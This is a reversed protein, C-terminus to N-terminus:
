KERGASLSMGLLIFCGILSSGGYSVFPMTLGTTPLLCLNVSVHVMSQFLLLLAAGTIFVRETVGSVGSALRLLAAALGAILAGTLVGGALGLTELLTAFASDNYSFPLYNNSWVAGGLKAGFYHGRAIALEFQRAHWGSGMPDGDPDLFGRLRQLAYPHRWVFLAAAALGGGVPLLLYTKKGSAAFYLLMFVGFYIAATGFDPQLAVPILWLLTWLGASAFRRFETGEGRSMLEALVLLFPAKMLESPQLSLGGVRFWGCMGNIRVGCWPLVILLMAGVGGLLWACKRYLRFPVSAAALMLFLGCFLFFVQKLLLPDPGASEFRSSAITLVGFVGLLFSAGVVVNAASCLRHRASVEIGTEM